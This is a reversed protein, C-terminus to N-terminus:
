PCSMVAKSARPRRRTADHDEPSGLTDPCLPPAAPVEPSVVLRGACFGLPPRWGLWLTHPAGLHNAWAVARHNRTRCLLEPSAMSNGLDQATTSPLLLAAYQVSGKAQRGTVTSVPRRQESRGSGHHTSLVQKVLSCHDFPLGSWGNTPFVTSRYPVKGITGRLTLGSCTVLDFCLRRSSRSLLGGRTTWELATWEQGRGGHM